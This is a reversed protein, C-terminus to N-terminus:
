AAELLRQVQQERQLIVRAVAAPKTGQVTVRKAVERWEALVVVDPDDAVAALNPEIRLGDITLVLAAGRGAEILETIRAGNLTKDSLRPLKLPPLAPAEAVLTRVPIARVHDAPPEAAAYEIADRADFADVQALLALLGERDTITVTSM